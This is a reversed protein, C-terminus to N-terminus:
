GEPGEFRFAMKERVDPPLKPVGSRPLLFTSLEFLDSFVNYQETTSRLYEFGSTGGTGIKSGIMRSVMLAHRHRWSTFGEDIDMLSQLLRFPLQLIPEDRYLNILLAALFAEHSLHRVGADKLEKYRDADFLTDFHAASSDFVALQAERQEASLSPNTTIVARDSALMGEVAKRYEHWFDFQGFHLFPTRGLWSEVVDFLSTEQESQELLARHEASLRSTYSAGDIQIRREPRIGLRNEILRFQWSQFGSAPVLHDRFDLFDLPTMTELIDLQPQLLRQIEIIRRLRQVVRGMDDDDVFSRDMIEIVSELEFLVLKFWLEYAQHVVIFLMEDHAPEGKRASERDQAGLLKDLHLYDSYYLGSGM